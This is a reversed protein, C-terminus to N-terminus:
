VKFLFVLWVHSCTVKFTLPGRSGTCGSPLLPRKRALVGDGGRARLEERGRARPGQEPRQRRSQGPASPGLMAGLDGWRVGHGARVTMRWEAGTKNKEYNKVREAATNTEKYATAFSWM